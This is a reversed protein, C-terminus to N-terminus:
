GLFGTKRRMCGIYAVWGDVIKALSVTPARPRLVPGSASRKTCKAERRTVLYDKPNSYSVDCFAFIRTPLHFDFHRLLFYLPLHRYCRCESRITGTSSIRCSVVAAPNRNQIASDYRCAQCFQAENKRNSTPSRAWGRTGRDDTAIASKLSIRVRALIAGEATACYGAKAFLLCSFGFFSM